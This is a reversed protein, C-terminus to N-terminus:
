AAFQASQGSGKEAAYDMSVFMDIRWLVAKYIGVLFFRRPPEKKTKLRNQKSFLAERLTRLVALGSSRCIRSSREQVSCFSAKTHFVCRQCSYCDGSAQLTKKFMPISWIIDMVNEQNEGSSELCFHSYLQM